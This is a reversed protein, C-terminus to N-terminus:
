SIEPPTESAVGDDREQQIITATTHTGKSENSCFKCHAALGAVIQGVRDFTEKISNRRFQRARNPLVKKVQFIM